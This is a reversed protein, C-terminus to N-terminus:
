HNKLKTGFASQWARAQAMEPCTIGAAELDDLDKLLDTKAAAPDSENKLYRECTAKAKPWDHLMLYSHGLDPRVWNRNPTNGTGTVNPQPM